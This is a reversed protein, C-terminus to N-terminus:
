DEIKATLIDIIDESVPFSNKTNRLSDTSGDEEKPINPKSLSSPSNKGNFTVNFKERLTFTEDVTFSSPIHHEIMYKKLAADFEAIQDKKCGTNQSSKLHTVKGADSEKKLTDSLVKIGEPSTKGTDIDLHQGNKDVSIGSQEKLKDQSDQSLSSKLTAQIHVPALDHTMTMVKALANLEKFVFVGHRSKVEYSLSDKSEHYTTGPDAKLGCAFVKQVFVRHLGQSDAVKHKPAARKNEISAEFTDSQSPRAKADEYFTYLVSFPLVGFAFLNKIKFM